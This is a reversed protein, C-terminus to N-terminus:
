VPEFNILPEELLLHILKHHGILAAVHIPSMARIRLQPNERLYQYPKHMAMVFDKLDEVGSKGYFEFVIKWDPFREITTKEIGNESYVKEFEMQRLLRKWVISNQDIFDKWKDNVERCSLISSVDLKELITTAIHQFGPNSLFGDM